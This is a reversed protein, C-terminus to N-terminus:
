MGLWRVIEIDGTTTEEIDMGWPVAIYGPPLALVEVRDAPNDHANGIATYGLRVPGLGCDIEAEGYSGIRPTEANHPRRRLSGDERCQLSMANGLVWGEISSALLLGIV